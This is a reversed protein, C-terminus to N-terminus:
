RKKMQPPEDELNVVENQPLQTISNKDFTVSPRGEEGQKKASAAVTDVHDCHGRPSDSEFRGAEDRRREINGSDGEVLCTIGKLGVNSM